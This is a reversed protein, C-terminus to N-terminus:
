CHYTSLRYRGTRQQCMLLTVNYTHTLLNIGCQMLTIHSTIHSTYKSLMHDCQLSILLYRINSLNVEFRLYIDGAVTTETNTTWVVTDTRRNVISMNGTIGFSLEYLQNASQMTFPAKRTAGWSLEASSTWHCTQKGTTANDSYVGFSGDNNVSMYSGAVYTYTSFLYKYGSIDGNDIFLLEGDAQIYCFTLCFV